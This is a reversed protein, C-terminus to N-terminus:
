GSNIETPFHQKNNGMSSVESMEPFGELIAFNGSAGCMSTQLLTYQSKLM